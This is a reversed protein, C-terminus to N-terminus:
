CTEFLYGPEDPVVLDRDRLITGAPTGPDACVEEFPIDLTDLYEVALVADGYVDTYAACEDYAACEEAVALDFGVEERARDALEASNKQAVALGLAHAGETLEAAFALADDATFAEDSRTYSDLNDFEVADFGREACEEVTVGVIEAIETRQEETSVDLLFEDPWNPDAVFEGDEDRLLLDSHDSVWADREQPQTQFGNVYCVSYLGAAPEDTADRVVAVVESAPEYAGGLQYDFVGAPPLDVGDAGASSLEAGDTGGAACGAALVVLVVAAAARGPAAGGRHTM